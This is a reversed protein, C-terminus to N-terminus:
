AEEHSSEMIRLIGQDDEVLILTTSRQYETTDFGSQPLYDWMLTVAYGPKKIEKQTENGSLSIIQRQLIYETEEVESKIESVELTNAVGGNELYYNLDNYFGVIAQTMVSTAFSTEIYQLGGVDNFHLKNTWTYFDAIYNEAVLKAVEEKEVPNAKMAKTLAEYRERQFATANKRLKFINDNNEVGAVPKDKQYSTAKVLYFGGVSITVLSLILVVILLFNGQRNKQSM